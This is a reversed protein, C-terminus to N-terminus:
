FIENMRRQIQIIEKKTKNIEEINRKSYSKELKETLEKMAQLLQAMLVIDERKM